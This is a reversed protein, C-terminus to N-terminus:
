GGFHMQYKAGDSFLCAGTGMTPGTILYECQV